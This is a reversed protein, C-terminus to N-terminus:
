ASMYKKIFLNFGTGRTNKSEINYVARQEDTLEHWAAVANGFKGRNAQQPITRPNKTVFWGIRWTSKGSEKHRTQYVGDIEINDNHLPQGPTRPAEQKCKFVLPGDGFYSDGPIIQGFCRNGGLKNEAGLCIRLVIGRDDNIETMTKKKIESVGYRIIILHKTTIIFLQITQQGIGRRHTAQRLRQAQYKM